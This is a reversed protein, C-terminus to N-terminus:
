KESKMEMPLGTLRRRLLDLAHNAAVTRIRERAGAAHLVRVFTEGQGAIAVYVLGVPNGRDDPDPGAVGTVSLALDAGALTRVGEAMARAVPDSVAGYQFLLDNPVGLIDHKVQSWYSVVGGKFAASSGPLDTIRKALLGGTCSEAVSVTLEREKLLALSRFLM